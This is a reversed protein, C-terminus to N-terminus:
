LWVENTVDPLTVFLKGRNCKVRINCVLNVICIFLLAYNGGVRMKKIRSFNPHAGGVFVKKESRWIKPQDNELLNNNAMAGVGIGTGILTLSLFLSGVAEFKGDDNPHRNM